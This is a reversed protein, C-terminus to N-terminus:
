KRRSEEVSIREIEDSVDLIAIARLIDDMSWTTELETLPAM